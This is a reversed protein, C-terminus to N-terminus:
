RPDSIIMLANVVSTLTACALMSLYKKKIMRLVEGKNRKKYRAIFLLKGMIHFSQSFCRFMLYFKPEESCGTPLSHAFVTSIFLM